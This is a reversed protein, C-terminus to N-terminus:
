PLTLKATGAWPGSSVNSTKQGIIEVGESDEDNSAKERDFCEGDRLNARNCM